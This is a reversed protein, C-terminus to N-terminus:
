SGDTTSGEQKQRYHLWGASGAFLAACGSGVALPDFQGKQVVLFIVGGWFSVVSTLISLRAIDLAENGKTYLLDRLISM